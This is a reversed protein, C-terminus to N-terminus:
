KETKPPLGFKANIASVQVVPLTRSGEPILDGIVEMAEPWAEALKKGTTMTNLVSLAEHYATACVDDFNRYRTAFAKVEEALKEDTISYAEWNQRVQAYGEHKAQEFKVWRSHMQEGLELRWGGANVTLSQDKNIAKPFAKQIVAMADLIPKTYVHAYVRDALTRNLQVLAKAEDTYRYAVLKRAMDERISKTLKSM